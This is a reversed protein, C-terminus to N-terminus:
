KKGEQEARMKAAFTKLEDVTFNYGRAMGDAVGAEYALKVMKRLFEENIPRAAEKWGAVFGELLGVKEGVIKKQADTLGTTNNDIM